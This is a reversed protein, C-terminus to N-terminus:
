GNYVVKGGLVTADVKLEFLQPGALGRPDASLLAFDGLKGPTISGRDHDQHTSQAAWITWMRLADDFGVTQTPEVVGGADFDNCIAAISFLPRPMRTGGGCKDSMLIPRVGDAVYTRYPASVGSSLGSGTRANRTAVQPAIMTFYMQAARMRRALEPQARHHEVRHHIVPGDPFRRRVEEIANTVITAGEVTTCHTITQLGRAHAKTVVDAFEEPTYHRMVRDPTSSDMVLKFGGTRFMDNGFGRTVGTQLVADVDASMPCMYYARMRLPLEGSAHLQHDASYENSSVLCVPSASTVGGAVWIDKAVKRIAGKLEEVSWLDKPLRMVMDYAVGPHGHEDRTSLGGAFPAGNSWNRAHAEDIRTLYGMAQAALSNAVHSHVGNFLIIPHRTSVGDLEELTPLRNEAVGGLRGEAVVWKGAPTQDARAKVRALVEAVSKPEPTHLDLMLVTAAASWEMHIHTDVFGPVLGRGGADLVRVGRAMSRIQANSGVAQIRGRRVLVAQAEPQRPDMTIVRANVIALDHMWISPDFSTDPSANQQARAWSGIGLAGAALGAGGAILQRRDM